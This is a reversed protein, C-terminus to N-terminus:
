DPDISNSEGATKGDFVGAIRPIRTDTWPADIGKGSGDLRGVFKAL